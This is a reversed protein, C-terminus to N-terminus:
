PTGAYSALCYQYTKSKGADENFSSGLVLLNVDSRGMRWSRHTAPDFIVDRKGGPKTQGLARADGDVRAAHPIWRQVLGGILPVATAEELEARLLSLLMRSLQYRRARVVEGESVALMGTGSAEEGGVLDLDRQTVQQDLIVPLQRRAGVDCGDHVPDRRNGARRCFQQNPAPLLRLQIDVGDSLSLSPATAM